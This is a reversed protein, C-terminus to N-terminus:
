NTWKSHTETFFILYIGLYLFIKNVENLTICSQLFNLSWKFHDSKWIKSKIPLHKFMTRKNQSSSVIHSQFESCFNLFLLIIWSPNLFWCKTSYCHPKWHPEACKIHPIYMYFRHQKTWLVFLCIFLFLVSERQVCRLTTHTAHARELMLTQTPWRVNCAM